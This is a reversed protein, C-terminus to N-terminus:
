KTEKNEKHEARNIRVRKANAARTQPTRAGKYHLRLAAADDDTWVDPETRPPRPKHYRVGHIEGRRIAALLEEAHQWNPVYPAIATLTEVHRTM